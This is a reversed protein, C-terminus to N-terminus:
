QVRYDVDKAELTGAPQSLVGIVDVAFHLVGGVARKHATVRDM